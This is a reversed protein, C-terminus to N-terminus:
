NHCEGVLGFIVTIIQGYAPKTFFQSLIYIFPFICFGFCCGFEFISLLEHFENFNNLNFYYIIALIYITIILFILMDILFPVLWFVFKNMGCIMQLLKAKKTSETIYFTIFFSIWSAYLIGFAVILYLDESVKGECIAKWLDFAQGESFYFPKNTVRINYNESGYSTLLARNIVNLTLPVAHILEGNFWAIAENSQNKFTVGITYDM